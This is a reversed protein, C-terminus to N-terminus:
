RRVVRRLVWTSEPSGDLPLNYTQSYTNRSPDWDTQWFDNGHVSQDLPNSRGNELRELLYGGASPLGEFRVPVAGVGGKIV